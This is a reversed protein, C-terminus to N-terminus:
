IISALEQKENTTMYWVYKMFHLKETESLIMSNVINDLMSWDVIIKAKKM